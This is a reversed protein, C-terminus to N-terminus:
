TLAKKQGGGAPKQGGRRAAEVRARAGDTPPRGPLLGRRLPGGAPLAGVLDPQPRAGSRPAGPAATALGGAPPFAALAAVEAERAIARALWLKAVVPGQRVDPYMFPVGYLEHTHHTADRIEDATM